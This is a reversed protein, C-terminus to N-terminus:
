EDKEYDLVFNGSEIFMNFKNIDSLNIEIVKNTGYLTNM